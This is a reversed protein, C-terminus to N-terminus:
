DHLPPITLGLLLNGLPPRRQSYTGVPSATKANVATNPGTREVAAGADDEFTDTNAV